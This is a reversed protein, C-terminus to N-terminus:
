SGNAAALEVAACRPFLWLNKLRQSEKGNKMRLMSPQDDQMDLEGTERGGEECECVSDKRPKDRVCVSKPAAAFCSVSRVSGYLVYRVQTSRIKEAVVM